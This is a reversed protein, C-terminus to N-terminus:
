AAARATSGRVVLTAAHVERRAVMAGAQSADILLQTARRGIERGDSRVTTLQIRRHAALPIDDFGVVSVDEPVRRGTRELHDIAAIALTDNHAAIATAAREVGVQKLRRRRVAATFFLERRDGSFENLDQPIFAFRRHGLEALHDVIQEMAAEDDTDVVGLRSDDPDGCGAFVVPVGRDLLVAHVDSGRSIGAVVVGDVRRAILAGLAESENGADCETNAILMSFGREHAAREAGLVLQAYFPNTPEPVIVGLTHSARARLSRAIANPHYGLEAIATEVRQRTEEAVPAGGRIVNSVTSKSVGAQRAVDRLTTM